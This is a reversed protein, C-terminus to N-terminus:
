SAHTKWDGFVLGPYREELAKRLAAVRNQLSESREKGLKGMGTIQIIKLNGHNPIEQEVVYIEEPNIGLLLALKECTITADLFINFKATRAVAAHRASHTFIILQQREGRWAGREGAWVGLFPV